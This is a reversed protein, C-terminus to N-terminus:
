VMAGFSAQGVVRLQAQCGHEPDDAFDLRYSVATVSQAFDHRTFGLAVDLEVFVNQGVYVHHEAINGLGHRHHIAQDSVDLVGFFAFDNGAVVLFTFDVIHAVLQTALVDGIDVAAYILILFAYVVHVDDSREFLGAVIDDIDDIGDLLLVTVAVATDLAQLTPEPHELAM